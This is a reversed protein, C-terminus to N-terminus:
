PKDHFLYCAVVGQCLFINIENLLSSGYAQWIYFILLHQWQHIAAVIGASCKFQSLLIGSTFAAHAMLANRVSTCNASDSHLASFCNM